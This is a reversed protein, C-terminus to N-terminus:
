DMRKHIPQSTLSGGHYHTSMICAGKMHGTGKRILTVADTSYIDQPVVVKFDRREELIPIGFADLMDYTWKEVRQVYVIGDDKSEYLIYPQVKFSISKLILVIDWEEAESAIFVGTKKKAPAKRIVYYRM